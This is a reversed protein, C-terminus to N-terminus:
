MRVVYLYMLILCASIVAAMIISDRQKRAQMKQMVSNLLPYKETIHRASYDFYCLFLKKIAM